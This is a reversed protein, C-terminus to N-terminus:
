SGILTMSLPVMRYIRYSARYKLYEVEFFETVKVVRNPDKLTM